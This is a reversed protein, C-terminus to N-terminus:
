SPGAPIASPPRPPAIKNATAKATPPLFYVDMGLTKFNYPTYNRSVEGEFHLTPMKKDAKQPLHCGFCAQNWSSHCAVCSMRENAHACKSPDKPVDGWEM